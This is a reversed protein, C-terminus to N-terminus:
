GTMGPQDPWVFGWLPQCKKYLKNLRVNQLTDLGTTLRPPPKNLFRGSTADELLEAVLRQDAPNDEILLLPTRDDAIVM